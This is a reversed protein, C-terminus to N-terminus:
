YQKLENNDISHQQGDDEDERYILRDFDDEEDDNNNNQEAYAIRNNRSKMSIGGNEKFLETSGTQELLGL